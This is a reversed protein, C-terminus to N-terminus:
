AASATVFGVAAMAALWWMWTARQTSHTGLVDPDEHLRGRLGSVYDGLHTRDSVYIVTADSCERAEAVRSPESRAAKLAHRYEDLSVESEFATTSGMLGDYVSAMIAEPSEVSRSALFAGLAKEVDRASSWRGDLDRSLCRAIVHRLGEPVHDLPPIESQEVAELTDLASDRKFLRMGSCLEHLVVGLSFLDSRGDLTRGHAQEPSMYAHKGKLVGVRTQLDNGAFKAIGFDIVVVRGDHALMINQPSIDRHVIRLQKGEPTTFHSAYDLARAVMVGISAVAMPAMPQGNLAQQIATLDCGYIYEMTIYHSTGVQGLEYIACINPHSLQSALRAEAVFMAVFDPDEEATPLLRKLAVVKEFGLAGFAKSKFVEAM